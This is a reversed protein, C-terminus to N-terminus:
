KQQKRHVAAGGSHAVAGGGRGEVGQEGGRGKGGRLPGRLLPTRPNRGRPFKQFKSPQLHSKSCKPDTSLAYNESRKPAPFKVLLEASSSL